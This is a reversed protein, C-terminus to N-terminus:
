LGCHGTDAPEQQAGTELLTKLEPLKRALGEPGFSDIIAGQNMLYFRDAIPGCFTIDHESMIVTYDLKKLRLILNAFAQTMTPSLGETIENLLIVNAGTRLIRAIALMRQEANSLRTALTHQRERLDPCLEYIRSLSMGGGLSENDRTPLLLNEECTLHPFIRAGDPVIGLGLHAIDPSIHHLSEQGIVRVSGEHARTQGSIARLTTRRGSGTRGLLVVAEGPMAHMNVGNVQTHAYWVHLDVVQLAAMTM